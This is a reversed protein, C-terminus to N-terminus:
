PSTCCWVNWEHPPDLPLLITLLLRSPVVAAAAASAFSNNNVVYVVVVCITTQRPSPAQFIWSNILIHLHTQTVAATIQQLLTFAVHEIVAMGVAQVDVVM